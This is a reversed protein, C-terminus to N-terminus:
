RRPKAVFVANRQDDLYAAALVNLEGVTVAAYDQAFSRAWSLQVPHRLSGDLVMRLWYDNRRRMEKIRTMLPRRARELEGAAVGGAALDSAIHRVVDVITDIVKPAVIIHTELSGYGKYTRSAHHFADPSYAAGLEERVQERLRDALIGALLSLRRTRQIDWIDETPYAVVVAGKEIRTDLAVTRRKGTPFHVQREPRAAEVPMESRSLSGLYRAALRIIKEPDLDGVLSLEMGAPTWQAELWSKVVPLTMKTIETGDPYGFRGDGGALFRNGVLSYAAEVDHGMAEVNNMLRERVLDFASQRYSPDQMSAQLLQFLLQTEAPVTSGRFQLRDDAVYFSRTTNKGALAHALQERDLQGLGSENVLMGALLAMGPWQQPETSRGNGFSLIYAITNAKFDTKKVNLRMGNAFDVQVIDLDEIDRRRLIEGSAAPKDLYPFVIRKEKEPPAVPVAASQQFAKLISQAPSPESSAPIVANGTVLLLRDDSQWSNKFARHLAGADLKRITEALLHQEQDPSLFVRSRAMSHAISRSLSQSQRTSARRVATELGALYEKRVREVEADTFGYQLTRRLAQELAALTQQWNEPRCDASLAAYAVNRLYTGSGTRASTMPAQQDSILRDLRYQLISDAMDAAVRKRREAATDRTYPVMKLTEIDVTADGAEKEYHYFTEIGSHRVTGPDPVFTGEARPTLAGFLRDIRKEADGPDFDGVMIVVMRDPRYWTDYFTRLAFHDASEIVEETGIPLRDPLRAHPMEFRLTAEFTRYSASDRARKEALIVKRERDVEAPLLLAGTAYDQLIILGKELSAADGEPLLLDYVTTFFGTRANADPGFSMGANQFYRVLEGPAYHTSGNFLMHELYHALGRQHDREHFSGAQILLHMSVRDPPTQNPMLAYRLGNALRGFRVAPDPELDSHEHPWRKEEELSPLLRPEDRFGMAQLCPTSLLIILLSFVVLCCARPLRPKRNTLFLGAIM